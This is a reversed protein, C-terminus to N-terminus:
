ECCVCVREKDSESKSKSEEEGRVEREEGERWGVLLKAWVEGEVGSRKRRKRRKEGCNVWREREREEVVLKVCCVVVGVNM